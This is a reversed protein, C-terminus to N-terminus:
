RWAVKDIPLYPEVPLNFFNTNIKNYSVQNNFFLFQQESDLYLAAGKRDYDMYLTKCNEKGEMCTLILSEAPIEYPYYLREWDHLSMPVFLKSHEPYMDFTKEYYALRKTFFEGRSIIRDSSYILLFM